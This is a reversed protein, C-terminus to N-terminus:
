YYSVLGPYYRLATHNLLYGQLWVRLVTQVTLLTKTYFNESHFLRFIKFHLTFHISKLYLHSSCIKEWDYFQIKNYPIQSLEMCYDPAEIVQFVRLTTLPRPGSITNAVKNLWVRNLLNLTVNIYLRMIIHYQNM